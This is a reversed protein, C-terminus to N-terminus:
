SFPAPLFLALLAFAIGAFFILCSLLELWAVIPKSAGRFARDAVGALFVVNGGALAALGVALITPSFSPWRESAVLSAFGAIVLSLSWGAAAVVVVVDIKRSRTQV